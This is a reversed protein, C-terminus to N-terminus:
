LWDQFQMKISEEIREAEEMIEKSLGSAAKAKEEKPLKEIEKLKQSLDWAEKVNVGVEHVNGIFAMGYVFKGARSLFKLCTSIRPKNALKALKRIENAITTLYGAAEEIHEVHSKNSDEQIKAILNRLVGIKPMNPMKEKLQIDSTLKALLIDLSDVESTQEGVLEEVCHKIEDLADKLQENIRSVESLTEKALKKHQYNSYWEWAADIGVSVFVAVSGIVVLFPGTCFASAGLAVLSGLSNSAKIASLIRHKEKEKVCVKTGKNAVEKLNSVSSLATQRYKRFASILPEFDTSEVQFNEEVGRIRRISVQDSM